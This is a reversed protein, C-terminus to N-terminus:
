RGDNRLRRQKKAWRVMAKYTRKRLYAMTMNSEKYNRYSRFRVGNEHLRWLVAEEVVDRPVGNLSVIKDIARNRAKVHEEWQTKVAAWERRRKM